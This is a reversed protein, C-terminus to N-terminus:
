QQFPHTGGGVVAINLRDACSVLAARIEALESLVQSTSKCVGTSIEIMSSTMEPVVSGPLQHHAMLRLMEDSYPALDYDHTNVLQLELEVGMTLAASQSFPELTPPEVEAALPPLVMNNVCSERWCV